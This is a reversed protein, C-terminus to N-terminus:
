NFTFGISASYTNYEQVAYEGSLTLFLLKLRLGLNGRFGSQNYGFAIPDILNESETQYTGKMAFDVKSQVYGMGGYITLFSIKKSIVAQVTMANVEFVIKQDSSSIDPEVDASAKFQTFGAFVSLDFPLVKEAPLWQKIDHMVGLGFMNFRYGEERGVLSEAASEPIFRIKLETGKPLGIGIQIMPSPVANIPFEEELGLGTPASIRVLEEQFDGDNDLDNFDRVSLQPLDDAGLNPGLLTPVQVSNGGAYYFNEFESNLFTYFEKEDPVKSASATISLDFGLLKHPKATNYWGSQLGYGIGVFLPEMYHKLMTTADAAGAELLTGLGDQAKSENLGVGILSVFILLTRIIKKM